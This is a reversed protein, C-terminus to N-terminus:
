GEDRSSVSSLPLQLRLKILYAPYTVGKEHSARRAGWTWGCSNLNAHFISFGGPESSQLDIKYSLGRVQSIQVVQTQCSVSLGLDLAINSYSLLVQLVITM